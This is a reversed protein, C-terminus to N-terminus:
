QRRILKGMYGCTEVAFPVSRNAAHDPVDKRFRMRKTWWATKVAQAAYSMASAHAVVVDVAALELQPPVAAIDGRRQWEVMGEKGASARYRPDAASQCSCASVVLRLANALDDHRLQLMKAVKECDIAHDADAFFGASCKCTPPDVDAPVHHGLRHWVSVVFMDNGCTM